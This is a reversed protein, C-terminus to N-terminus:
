YRMSMHLHSQILINIIDKLNICQRQTKITGNRNRKILEDSVLAIHSSITYVTTRRDDVLEFAKTLRHLTLTKFQAEDPPFM